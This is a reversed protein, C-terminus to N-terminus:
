TYGKVRQQKNTKGNDKYIRDYGRTDGTSCSTPLHPTHYWISLHNLQPWLCYMTNM